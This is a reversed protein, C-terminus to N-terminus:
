MRSKSESLNKEDYTQIVQDIIKNMEKKSKVKSFGISRLFSHM